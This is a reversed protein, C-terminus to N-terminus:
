TQYERLIIVFLTFWPQVNIYDSWPWRPLLTAAGFQLEPTDQEQIWVRRVLCMAGSM